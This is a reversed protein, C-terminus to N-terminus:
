KIAAEYEDKTIAEPVHGKLPTKNKIANIVTASSAYKLRSALKARSEFDQGNWRVPKMQKKHIAKQARMINEYAYSRGNM